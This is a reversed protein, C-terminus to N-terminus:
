KDLNVYKLFENRTAENNFAGSYSSTVTASNFDQV